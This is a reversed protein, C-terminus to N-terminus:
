NNQLELNIKSNIKDIEKPSFWFIKKDRRFWTMQRRAYHWIETQLNFIMEDRPIEKKLFKALYKYELGLEKMRKWSLGKKHLGMAEDIMGADIRIQLRAQIRNKLEEPPLNLGIKISNYKSKTKKIKPVKGIAKAIEIARIIRRSNKPDVDKARVPDLKTLMTFLEASTKKALTDRLKTNPPVEPFVIGDILASIYFGTGGCIIPLKKRSIIEEIAKEGLEVFETVAFQKKPNAVDIMHHPIGLMEKKTIKGTGIDLGKYVQRSDASIVEGNLKEALKVALDSKGTATPGCIILITPKPFKM